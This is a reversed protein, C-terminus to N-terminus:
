RGLNVKGYFLDLDDWPWSKYFSQLAGDGSAEHWSDFDHGEPEPSSKQLNKSNIAMTAMKTMHGHGVHGHGIICVKM